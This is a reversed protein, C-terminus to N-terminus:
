QRAKCDCCIEDNFKELIYLIKSIVLEQSIRSKGLYSRNAHIHLGPLKVIMLM